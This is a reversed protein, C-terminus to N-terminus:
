SAACRKSAATIRSVRGHDRRRRRPRLDRRSLHVRRSQPRAARRRAARLASEARRRPSDHREGLLRRAEDLRLQRRQPRHQGRRHPEHRHRRRVDHRGDSGVVAPARQPFRLRLDRRADESRRRGPVQQRGSDHLRRPRERREDRAPQASRHALDGHDRLGAAADREPQEREPRRRQQLRSRQREHLAPRLGALGAAGDPQVRRRGDSPELVARRARRAAARAAHRHVHERAPDNARWETIVNHFTVDSPATAPRFSIRPRRIERPASSTSATGCATARSSPTSISVSSAARSGRTGRTRSCPRSTPMCRRATATSSICSGARTTRSAAPRRALRARLQRAGLRKAHRGPRRAAFQADGASARRRAGRGRAREERRRRCRTTPSRHRRACRCGVAVVRRRGVGKVDVMSEGWSVCPCGRQM